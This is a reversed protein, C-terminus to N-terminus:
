LVLSQEVTPPLAGSTVSGLSPRKKDPNLYLINDEQLLKDFSKKRSGVSRVKNIGEISAEPNIPDCNIRVAVM